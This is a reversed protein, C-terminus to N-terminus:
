WCSKPKEETSYIFLGTDGFSLQCKWGLNMLEPILITNVIELLFENKGFSIEESIKSQFKDLDFYENEEKRLILFEYVADRLKDQILIKRYFENNIKLLEPKIFDPFEKM